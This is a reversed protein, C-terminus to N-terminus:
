CTCYVTLAVVWPWPSLSVGHFHADVWKTFNLGDILAAAVQPLVWVIVLLPQLTSSKSHPPSLVSAFACPLPVEEASPPSGGPNYIAHVPVVRGDDDFLTVEALSIETAAPGRVSTFIFQYVQGSVDPKGSSPPPLRGALTVMPPRPVLPFISSSPPHVLPAASNRLPAASPSQQPPAPSRSDSATPPFPAPLADATGVYGAVHVRVVLLALLCRIIWM